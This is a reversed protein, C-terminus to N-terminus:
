RGVHTCICVKNGQPDALVTFAPAEDTSVVTGGAAVAADIREQAVEPPVRLDLHWRQTTDPSAEQFWITPGDGHPDALEDPGADAMALVARWFPKIEDLAWTDLALELRQVTSPAADIGLEDAIASITLALEVDRSTTGGVDHSTLAIRVQAYELTVTPHHDAAEAAAGVRDVLELGTAFDGTEFRAEIAGHMARWDDLGATARVEDGSLLDDTM